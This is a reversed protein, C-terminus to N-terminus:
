FRLGHKLGMTTLSQQLAESVLLGNQLQDAKLALGREGPLRVPANSHIPPSDLCQNKLYQIESLFANEGCFRSPDIVQVFVSAGWRKPDHQRGGGGLANTLAEVMLGLAFGKYGLDVGGLPLLTSPPEQFFTNPNDTATGSADLLWPGPLLCEEAAAKAVVGNATSSTSVDILIPIGETPIGVALPNPSYVGTLGGFPAVTKNRPDSCALILLQGRKTIAELYAALCAIHHSDRIVVTGIGETKAMNSAVEIASETLWIGSAFHGDWLQTTQTTNLIDFDRLTEMRGNTIEELYPGVLALGHTRHGLLEGEVLIRGNAEAKSPPMGAKEFLSCLFDLIKEVSIRSPEEM